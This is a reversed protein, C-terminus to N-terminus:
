KKGWWLDARDSSQEELWRVFLTFHVMCSPDISAHPLEEFFLPFIRFKSTEFKFNEVKSFRRFDERPSSLTFTKSAEGEGEGREWIKGEIRAEGGSFIIYFAKVRPKIRSFGLFFLRVRSGRGENKLEALRSSM